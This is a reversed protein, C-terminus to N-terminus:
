WLAGAVTKRFDGGPGARPEHCTDPLPVAPREDVTEVVVEKVYERLKEVQEPIPMISRDTQLVIRDLYRYKAGARLQELMGVFTLVQLVFGSSGKDAEGGVRGGDGHSYCVIRVTKLLPSNFARDEANPCLALDPEMGGVVTQAQRSRRYVLVLTDLFRLGAIAAAVTEAHVGWRVDGHTVWVERVAWFTLSPADILRDLWQKISARRSHALESVIHFARTASAIATVSVTFDSNVRHSAFALTRIPDKLTGALSPGSPTSWLDLKYNLVQFAIPHDAPPVLNLYFNLSHSDANNLTLRRLHPLYAPEPDQDLDDLRVDNSLALAILNPCSRVVRAIKGHLGPLNINCLALHTLSPLPLEPLLPVENIYLDRLVSPSNPPLPLAHTHWKSLSGARGDFSYARLLPSEHSLLSELYKMHRHGVDCLHLEEIRRAHIPYFSDVLKTFQRSPSLLVRLPVDGNRSMLEEVFEQESPIEEPPSAIVTSWLLPTSLAIERLQRCTHTIPILMLSDSITHDWFPKFSTGEYLDYDMPGPIYEMIRALIEVPLNLLPKRDNM